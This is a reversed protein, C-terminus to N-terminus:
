NVCVVVVATDENEVAEPNPDVNGVEAPSKALLIKTGPNPDFVDPVAVMCLENGLAGTLM